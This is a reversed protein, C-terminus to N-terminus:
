PSSYYPMWYATGGIMARTYGALTVPAISINKGNTSGGLLLKSITAM